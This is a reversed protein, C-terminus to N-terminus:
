EALIYFHIERTCVPSLLLTFVSVSWVAEDRRRGWLTDNAHLDAAIRIEWQDLLFRRRWGQRWYNWHKRDKSAFTVLEKLKTGVSVNYINQTVVTSENKLGNQKNWKHQLSLPWIVLPWSPSKMLTRRSEMQILAYHNWCQAPTWRWWVSALPQQPSFCHHKVLSIKKLWFWKKCSQLPNQRSQCCLFMFYLFFDHLVDMERSCFPHVCFKVSLKFENYLCDTSVCHAYISYIVLTNCQRFFFTYAIPITISAKVFM